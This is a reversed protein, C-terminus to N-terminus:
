HNHTNHDSFSSFIVLLVVSHKELSVCVRLSVEMTALFKYLAVMDRTMGYEPQKEALTTNPGIMWEVLAEMESVPRM